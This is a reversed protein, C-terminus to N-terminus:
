RLGHQHLSQTSEASLAITVTTGVGPSSDITVTGGLATVKRQVVDMGVGRGSVQSIAEATSLGPTFALRWVAQDDLVDQVPLALSRAALLLRQRSLGAGDDHVSVYIKEKALRASLTIRGAAPKGAAARAAPDEIGHDCANRVLHMLPDAFGQLVGRDVLVDEGTLYLAYQKHLRSSLDELLPPIRAFLLSVPARSLEKLGLALQEAELHWATAERALPNVGGDANRGMASELTAGCQAVRVAQEIMRQLETADVRVTAPAHAQKVACEGHQTLAPPEPAAVVTVTDRDVNMVLLDLLEHEPVVCRVLFEQVDDARSDVSLLEGLGVIDHFLGAVADAVVIKASSRVTIRQLRGADSQATSRSLARLRSSLNAAFSEALLGATLRKRVALVSDRVVGLGFHDPQTRRQRWSDLVSEVLHMLQAINSLGFAAAGGKISHASRFMTNVLDPEGGGHAIAQLANDMADLNELAEDVFIADPQM